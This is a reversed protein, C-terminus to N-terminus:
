TIFRANSIDQYLAVEVPHARNFNEDNFAPIGFENEMETMLEALRENRVRYDKCENIMLFQDRYNQITKVM